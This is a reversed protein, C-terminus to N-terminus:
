LEDHATAYVDPVGMHTALRERQTEGPRVTHGHGTVHRPPCPKRDLVTGLGQSM